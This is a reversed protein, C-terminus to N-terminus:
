ENKQGEANQSSSSLIQELLEMTSRQELLMNYIGDESLVGRRLDEPLKGACDDDYDRLWQPSEYYATLERLQEQVQIYGEAAESLARIAASAENLHQEMRSIRALQDM